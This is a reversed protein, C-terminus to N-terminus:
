VHIGGFGASADVALAGHLQEVLFALYTFDDDDLPAHELELCAQEGEFAAAAVTNLDYTGATGALAHFQRELRDTLDPGGALCEALTSALAAIRDPMTRVYRRKLELLKGDLTSTEM